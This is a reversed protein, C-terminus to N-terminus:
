CTSDTDQLHVSNCSGVPSKRVLNGTLHPLIDVYDDSPKGSAKPNTLFSTKRHKKSNEGTWCSTM